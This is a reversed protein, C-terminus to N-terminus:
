NRNSIKGNKIKGVINNNGNRVDGTSSISLIIKQSKDKINGNSVM